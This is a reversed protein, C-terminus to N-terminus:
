DVIASAEINEAEHEHQAIAMQRGKAYEESYINSKGGFIGKIGSIANFQNGM